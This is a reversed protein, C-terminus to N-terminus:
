CAYRRRYEVAIPSGTAPPTAWVCEPPPAQPLRAHVSRARRPGSVSGVAFAVVAVTPFFRLRTYELHVSNTFPTHHVVFAKPYPDLGSLHLFYPPPLRHTLMRGSPMGQVLDAAPLVSLHTAHSPPLRHILMGSPM